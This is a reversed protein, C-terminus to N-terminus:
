EHDCRATLIQEIEYIRAADGILEAEELAKLLEKISM